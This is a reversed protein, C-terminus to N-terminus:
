CNTDLKIKEHVLYEELSATIHHKWDPRFYFVRVNKGNISGERIREIIGFQNNLSCYIRDGIKFKM